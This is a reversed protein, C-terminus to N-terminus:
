YPRNPTGELVCNYLKPGLPCFRSHFSFVTRFGGVFGRYNLPRSVSLSKHGISVLLFEPPKQSDEKKKERKTVITKITKKKEFFDEKLIWFVMTPFWM